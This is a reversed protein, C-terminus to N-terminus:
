WAPRKVLPKTPRPRDDPAATEKTMVAYHAGRAPVITPAGFGLERLRKPPWRDSRGAPPESVVLVGGIRLFGTAIEAVLAPRGFGRATAVDAAERFEDWHAVVEARDEVVRVRQRDPGEGDTGFLEAAALELDRARRAIAEVLTVRATPLASAIVLGPVGGGSGLDVVWTPDGLRTAIVDVFGRAHEIQPAVPGPGLAGHARARELVAALRADPAPQEESSL